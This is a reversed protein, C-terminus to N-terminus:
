AGASETGAGRAVAEGPEAGSGRDAPASASRDGAPAPVSRHLVSESSTRSPEADQRDPRVGEFYSGCAGCRYQSLLLQSGFLSLLEASAVNCFPCRVTRSESM